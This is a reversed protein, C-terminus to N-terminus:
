MEQYVIKGDVMTLECKGYVLENAFPTCKGMSLLQEPEITYEKNLDYVTIDAPKGEAIEGAPLNFLKAANCSMLQVLKELSFVGTKVMKTYVLPFAFEVGTIGMAAKTFDTEKESVTHPAHDTSIVELTGDLVGEILAKHDEVSRLPPNMKFRGHNETIDTEDLLLHHPTVEASVKLGKAKAQRVLEVAEKTSVHCVHYQCGTKEALEIDRAIQKYESASNIGVLGFEKAKIGEHICGGPKLEENDECHAIIVGKGALISMAAEMTEACQVGVGDDSFLFNEKVLEALDAIDSYAKQGETIACIQYIHNLGDREIIDKVVKVNEISDPAPSINPMAFMTTVGASVAAMSGTKITEKHTFGPERLHVHPDILGPMVTKGTCDIVQCKELLEETINEVILGEDNVIIDTNVFENRIFVNGNKLLYM